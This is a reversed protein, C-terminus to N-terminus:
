PTREHASRPAGAAQAGDAGALHPAVARAIQVGIREQGQETLHVSDIFFADRPVLAERSWADLDVLGVGLRQALERLGANAGEAMAAVVYPNETFQPLHGFELARPTPVVDRVYLGPLTALFVQTGAEGLGRALAEVESLFAPRYDALRAIEPADPDPHKPRHYSALAIEQPTKGRMWLLSRVTRAARQLAFMHGEVARSDGFLANWGIYVVAVRPGLARFEDLRALANRPSYGNVGANVVEARAGLRALEREASRPWTFHDFLTGFTCSDGIALVRPRRGSRDLAPGKYGQANTRFIVEGDPVGLTKAGRELAQQSLVFGEKRMLERAEALTMALDPRLVWNGPREPDPMEYPKLFVKSPLRGERARDLLAYGVRGVGEAAALTVVLVVLAFLARTARSPSAAANM